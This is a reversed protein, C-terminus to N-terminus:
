GPHSEVQHTIFARVMPPVSEAHPLARLCDADDGPRERTAELLRHADKKATGEADLDNYISAAPVSAHANISSDRIL